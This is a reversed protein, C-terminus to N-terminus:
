EKRVFSLTTGRNLYSLQLQQGDAALVSFYTTSNGESVKLYVLGPVLVGTFDPDPNASTFLAYSGTQSVSSSANAGAYTDTWTGGSTVNISYNADDTSQWAGAITQAVAAQDLGFGAPATQTQTSTAASVATTSNTQALTSTFNQHALIYWGGLAIAIIALIIAPIRLDSM